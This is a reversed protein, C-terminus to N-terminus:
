FITPNAGSRGRVEDPADDGESPAQSLLKFCRSTGAHYYDIGLLCNHTKFNDNCDRFLETEDSSNYKM